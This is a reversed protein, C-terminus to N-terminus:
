PNMLKLIIATINLSFNIISMCIICIIIIKMFNLTKEVKADTKIRELLSKQHLEPLIELEKRLYIWESDNKNYEALVDDKGNLPGCIYPIDKNIFGISTDILMPISTETVLVVHTDIQNQNSLNNFSLSGEQGVLHMGPPNKNLVILKCEILKCKIGKRELLKLLTDSMGLCYGAGRPIIGSVWLSNIISQIIPFDPDVTVSDDFIFTNMNVRLQKAKM